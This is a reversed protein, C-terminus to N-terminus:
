PRRRHSANWLATGPTNEPAWYKDRYPDYPKPNHFKMSSPSQLGKSALFKNTRAILYLIGFPFFIVLLAIIAPHLGEKESQTTDIATRNKRRHKKTM